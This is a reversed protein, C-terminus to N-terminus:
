KKSDKIGYVTSHITHRIQEFHSPLLTGGAEMLVLPISPLHPTYPPQLYPLPCPVFGLRLYFRLRAQRQNIEAATIGPEDVPEIELILPKGSHEKVWQIIRSGINAGRRTPDIALHEGYIFTDLDWLTIFGVVDDALTAIYFTFRCDAIILNEISELPRREAEPFSALYIDIAKRYQESHLTAPTIRLM